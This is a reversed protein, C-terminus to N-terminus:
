LQGKLPRDMPAFAVAVAAAGLLRFRLWLGIENFQVLRAKCATMLRGQQRCAQSLTRTRGRGNKAAGWSAPLQHRHLAGGQLEGRPPAETQRDVDSSFHFNDLHPSLPSLPAILHAGTTTIQPPPVLCHTRYCTLPPSSKDTAVLLRTHTHTTVPFLPYLVCLATLVM